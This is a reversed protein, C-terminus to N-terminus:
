GRFASPITAEATQRAETFVSVPQGRVVAGFSSRRLGLRALAAVVLFLPYTLVVLAKMEIRELRRGLSTKGAGSRGRHVARRPMDFYTM